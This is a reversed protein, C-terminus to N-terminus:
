ITTPPYWARQDDTNRAAALPGTSDSPREQSPAGKETESILRVAKRVMQLARPTSIGLVAAIAALTKGEQRLKLALERRAASWAERRIRREAAPPIPARIVM